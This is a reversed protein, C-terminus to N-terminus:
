IVSGDIAEAVAFPPTGPTPHPSTRKSFSRPRKLEHISGHFQFALM